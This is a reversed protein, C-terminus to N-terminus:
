SAELFILLKFVSKYPSHPTSIPSYSLLTYIYAAISTGDSVDNM